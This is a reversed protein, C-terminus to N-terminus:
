HLCTSAYMVIVLFLTIITFVALGSRRHKVEAIAQHAQQKVLDAKEMAEDASMIVQIPDFAHILMRTTVLADHISRLEFLADSVEIGKHEATELLEKSSEYDKRLDDIAARMVSAAQYGAEGESHCQVCLAGEEMGILADTPHEIDHESHCFACEAEGLDDFAEKHPSSSFLEGPALHCQYCVRGISHVGPPIAGHNGHCDNCAPAGTDGRELLAIGHVSSRYKSYQDTPIKYEAMYKEDSHCGSCTGPVNASYIKSLPDNAPRIDHVGHCSVCQAVKRDGRKLLQGHHSTRYKDLQDTALAPNYKRMYEPNSHCRGCFEPIEAVSPSGLFGREPNMSEDADEATPDGGHCDACSIGKKEHYDNALKKAAEALAGDLQLHCDMCTNKDNPTRASLGECAPIFFACLLFTILIRQM